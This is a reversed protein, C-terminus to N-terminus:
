HLRLLDKLGPLKEKWKEPLEAFVVEGLATALKSLEEEGYNSYGKFDDLLKILKTRGESVWLGEVPIKLKDSFELPTIRKEKLKIESELIQSCIWLFGDPDEKKLMKLADEADSKFLDVEWKPISKKEKWVETKSM